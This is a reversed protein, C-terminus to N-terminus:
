AEKPKRRTKKVTVEEQVENEEDESNIKDLTQQKKDLREKIEDSDLYIERGNLLEDIEVSSLFHEYTGRLLKESTKSIHQVHSLIDSGKGGTGYSINHCLMTANDSVFMTDCHLAFISAASACEGVLVAMTTADTMKVAEILAVLGSYMGGPSNLLFIVSDAETANMLMSIVGRYYSPQVFPEDITVTYQRAVQTQVFFGLSDKNGEFENDEDSAKLNKLSKKYSEYSYKSTSKM